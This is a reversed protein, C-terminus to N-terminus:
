NLKEAIADTLVVSQMTEPDDILELTGRTRVRDFERLHPLPRRLHVELVPGYGANAGCFPCDAPDQVLVFTSLYAEAAIPVLYGTIEFAERTALLEEPYTKVMRWLDGDIEETIEIAGLLRWPADPDTEAGATGTALALSIITALTRISSQEKRSSTWM